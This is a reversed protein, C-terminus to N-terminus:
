CFGEQLLQEALSPTNIRNTTIIPIRVYSKLKRSVWTFVGRPVSTAITPIRSEHWGIGTNIMTVGLDQLKLALQLVEDFTAGGPVLDLMSLRFIIIFEPGVANRVARVIETPFRLRNELSGGWSDKRHNTHPVTFQNILYGESGMIEVGDYGAKQALLACHAYDKITQLIEHESLERPQYFNIPACIPSPAVLNDHFAYRGAHLIQMCIKTPYEHVASTIRRHQMMDEDTMMSAAGEAICGAPNPAIGGTVILGIHGKARQTYFHALHDFGQPEEELGVHMSGMLTRNAIRTFGLDLPELLKSYTQQM